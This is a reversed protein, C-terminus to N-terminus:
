SDRNDGTLKILRKELRCGWGYARFWADVYGPTKVKGTAWNSVTVTSVGLIEALDAQYMNFRKLASRFQTPTM